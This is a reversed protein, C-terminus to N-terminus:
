NKLGFSIILSHEWQNPDPIAPTVIFENVVFSSLPLQVELAAKERIIMDHNGYLLSIHPMFVKNEMNFLKKADLNLQMLQATSNVRVFVSQFYTASFSIPGLSLELKNTRSALETLKQEIDPLNQNINGLLTMHPEFIPSDYKESLKKIVNKLQSFIPEPPIIWISYQM